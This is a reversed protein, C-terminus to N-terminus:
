RGEGRKLLGQPRHKRARESGPRLGKTNEYSPIPALVSCLAHPASHVAGNRWDGCVSAVSRRTCRRPPRAPISRARDGAVARVGRAGWRRARISACRRDHCQAVDDVPTHLIFIGWKTGSCADPCAPTLFIKPVISVRRRARCPRVAAPVDAPVDARLARTLAAGAEAASRPKSPPSPTPSRPM